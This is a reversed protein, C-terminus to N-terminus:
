ESYREDMFADDKDLIFNEKETYDIIYSSDQTAEFAISAIKSTLLALEAVAQEKTKGEASFLVAPVEDNILEVASAYFVTENEIVTSELLVKYNM